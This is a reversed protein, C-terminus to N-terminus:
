LHRPFSLFRQGHEEQILVGANSFGCGVEEDMLVGDLVTQLLGAVWKSEM